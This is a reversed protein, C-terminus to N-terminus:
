RHISFDKILKEPRDKRPLLREGILTNVGSDLSAAVTEHGHEDLKAVLKSPFM